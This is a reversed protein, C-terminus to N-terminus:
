QYTRVFPTLQHSVPFDIERGVRGLDSVRGVDLVVIGQHRRDLLHPRVDVADLQCGSWLTRLTRCAGLTRLTGSPSITGITGLTRLTRCAGLSGLTRLTGSPSVTGWGLFVPVSEHGSDRSEFRWLRLGGPLGECSRVARGFTKGLFD